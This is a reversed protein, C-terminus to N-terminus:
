SRRCYFYRGGCSYVIRMSSIRVRFPLLHGVWGYDAAHRRGYNQQITGHVSLNSTTLDRLVGPFTPGEKWYGYVWKLRVIVPKGKKQHGRKLLYEGRAM